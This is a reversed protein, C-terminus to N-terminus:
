TKKGAERHKQCCYYEDNSIKIAESDPLHLGCNACAVMNAVRPPQKNKEQQRRLQYNRFMRYILWIALALILIRILSM